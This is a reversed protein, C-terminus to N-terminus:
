SAANSKVKSKLQAEIADVRGAIERVNADVAMVNVNVAQIAALLPDSPVAPTDPPVFADVPPGVAIPPLEAPKTQAAKLYDVSLGLGDKLVRAAFVAADWLGTVVLTAVWGITIVLEIAFSVAVAGPGSYFHDGFAMYGAGGTAYAVAAFVIGAKYARWTLWLIAIGALFHFGRNGENNM